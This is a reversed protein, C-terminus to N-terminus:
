DQANALERERKENRLERLEREIDKKEKDLIELKGNVSFLHNEMREIWRDLVDTPIHGLKM